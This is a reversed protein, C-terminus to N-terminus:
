ERRNEADPASEGSDSSADLSIDGMEDLAWFASVLRNLLERETMGRSSATHEVWQQFTGADVATENETDRPDM